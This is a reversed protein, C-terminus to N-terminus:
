QSSASFTMLVSSLARSNPVSYSNIHKGPPETTSFGGALASSAPEMGLDPLDGPSPFPLGSWCEQRSFGMSLPAQYAVPYLGHPRLSDSVVSAVCGEACCSNWPGHACVNIVSRDCLVAPISSVLTVNVCSQEVQLQEPPNSKTEWVLM